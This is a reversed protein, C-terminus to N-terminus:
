NCCTQNKGQLKGQHWIGSKHVGNQSICTGQGDFKSQKFEGIYECGNIYIFKGLGVYSNNNFQGVYRSGDKFIFTGMGDYKGQNIKGEYKNGNALIYTGCGNPQGNKLEGYYKNNHNKQDVWNPRTNPVPSIPEPCTEADTRPQKIGPIEPTTLGPQPTLEGADPLPQKPVLTPQESNPIPQGSNPIRTLNTTPQRSFNIFLLGIGFLLSVLVGAGILLRQNAIFFHSPPSISSPPPTVQISESSAATLAQLAEGATQYREKFNSRIMKDLVNALFPSVSARDRWIIEFTDPNKPLEQPRIGTLAYIGLMGVAYVDSSLKPYGNLQENPMYGSTGIVVSVNTVEQPNVTLKSIEKVSGFDILVIKGDSNRRMLNQAKIDRHIINQNHIITLVELIEKLLQTVNAESLKNGSFIEQSLDHGDIYEQVLYFEGEEEFHAFLQPIQTYERGLRYLAKAEKNFFNIFIQLEEPSQRQRLNKVVCLPHDPLDLDEALYTIGFSGSGLLKIIKYRNRLIHSALM